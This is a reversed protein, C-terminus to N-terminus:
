DGEPTNLITALTLIAAAVPHTIDRRAMLDAYIDLTDALGEAYPDHDDHVAALARHALDSPKPTM